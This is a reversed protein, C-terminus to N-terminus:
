LNKERRMLYIAVESVMLIGLDVKEIRFCGLVLKM